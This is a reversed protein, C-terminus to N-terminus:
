GATSPDIPSIVIFFTNDSAVNTMSEKSFIHPFILIINPM